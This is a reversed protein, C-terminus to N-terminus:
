SPGTSRRLSIQMAIGTLERFAKDIAEEWQAPTPPTDKMGNAHM